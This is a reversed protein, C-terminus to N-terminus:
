LPKVTAKKKKPREHQDSSCNKTPPLLSMSVEELFVTTIQRTRWWLYFFFFFSLAALSCPRLIIYIKARRYIRQSQPCEPGGREPGGNNNIKLPVKFAQKYKSSLLLQSSCHLPTTQPSNHVSFRCVM